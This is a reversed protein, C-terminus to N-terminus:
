PSNARPFQKRNSELSASGSVPNVRPGLPLFLFQLRPPRASFGCGGQLTPSQGPGSEKPPRQGASECSGGGSPLGGRNEAPDCERSPLPGAAIASRQLESNSSRAAAPTLCFATLAIRCALAFFGPM